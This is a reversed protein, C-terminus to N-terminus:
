SRCLNRYAEQISKSRENALHHFAPDLDAVRDPHNKKMLDRYAAHVQEPAAGPMLGLVEYPGPRAPKTQSQHDTTKDKSSAHQSANGHARRAQKAHSKIKSLQTKLLPLGKKITVFPLKLVYVSLEFIKCVITAPLVVTVMFFGMVLYRLAFYLLLGGWFFVNIGILLSICSLFIFWLDARAM